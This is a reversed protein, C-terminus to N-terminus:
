VYGLSRFASLDAQSSELKSIRDGAAKLKEQLTRSETRLQKVALNAIELRDQLASSSSNYLKTAAAPAQQSSSGIGLRAAVNTYFLSPLM